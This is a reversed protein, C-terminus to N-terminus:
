TKKGGKMWAKIKKHKDKTYEPTNPYSCYRTSAPHMNSIQEKEGESLIVMIPEINSDHIKNGIKVKM